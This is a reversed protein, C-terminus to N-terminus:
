PLRCLRVSFGRFKDDYKLSVVFPRLLAFKANERDRETSTWYAGGEGVGYESGPDLIKTKTCFNQMGNSPFFLTNGNPGTFVVGNRKNDWDAKYEKVLEEWAEISPLLSGFARVAGDFQHYGPENEKAWLRGSPLGLDVFDAETTKIEVLSMVFRKMEAYEAYIESLHVKVLASKEAKIKKEFAKMKRNIFATLEKTPNM